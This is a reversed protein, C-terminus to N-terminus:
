TAVGDRGGFGNGVKDGHRAHATPGPRIQLGKGGNVTQNQTGQKSGSDTSKYGSITVISLDAATRKEM